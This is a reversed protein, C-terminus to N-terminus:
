KKSLKNIENKRESKKESKELFPNKNNKKSDLDPNYKFTMKKVLNDDTVVYFTDKPMELRYESTNEVIGKIRRKLNTGNTLSQYDIKKVLFAKVIGDLFKNWFGERASSIIVFDNLHDIRNFFRKVRDLQRDKTDIKFLDGFEEIFIIAGSIKLDLIDEKSELIEMGKKRLIPFLSPEAGLVYIPLNYEKKLEVLESLALSSKGEGANGVLGITRYKKFLEKIIM